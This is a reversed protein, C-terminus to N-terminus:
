KRPPIVRMSTRCRRSALWVRGLHTAQEFQGARYVNALREALGGRPRWFSGLRFCEVLEALRYGIGCQAGAQLWAAVITALGDAEARGRLPVVEGEDTLRGSLLRLSQKGTISLVRDAFM